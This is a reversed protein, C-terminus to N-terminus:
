EDHVAGAAQPAWNLHQGGDIAVMQGTLSPSTLIFRLAGAIEDLSPARGLPVSAVQRAFQDATQRPSPLVPGPGIANVRIRPALALALTQTLTWLGAKSVTYSVFHPTLNWVRQDLLNVIVGEHHAGLQRAFGQSLVFPARLNTELHADWSARTATLAEDRDFLSANNVLVGVPGLADAARALLTETEAENALDAAVVAAKGGARAIEAAVADAETRSNRCHVAVAFGLDALELALTRGIRQGAGTVLAARPMTPSVLAKSM